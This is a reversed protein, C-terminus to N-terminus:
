RAPSVPQSLLEEVRELLTSAEFPKTVYGDAGDLWADDDRGHLATVLITRVGSFSPNKRISKVLEPGSVPSMQWDTIVLDYRKQQLMKLASLGDLAHNVDAYGADRLMRTVIEIVTKSDDVVLISYPEHVPDNARFHPM